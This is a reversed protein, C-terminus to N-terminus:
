YFLAVISQAILSGFQFKKLGASVQRQHKPSTNDGLVQNMIEWESVSKSCHTQWQDIETRLIEGYGMRLKVYTMLIEHYTVLIEHYTVLIEHYTILLASCYM